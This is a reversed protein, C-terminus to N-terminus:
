FLRREVVRRIRGPQSAGYVVLTGHETGATVPDSGRGLLRDTLDRQIGSVVLVDSDTAAREVAADTGSEVLRTEVPAACLAVLETLYDATTNRRSEPQDEGIPLYFTVTSGTATALADALAVKAPDFPGEDTIVGIREVADHDLNSVEVVDCPAHDEIWQTDSGLLTDRGASREILLTDADVHDAYNVIAHRTDHSVVEGYRIPIESDTARDAMRAEFAQDAETLTAASQPLPTQDPVEDFQAVRVGGERTRALDAALDILAREVDPPTRETVAVLVEHGATEVESETQEVVDRGVSRRLADTMAGERPVGGRRSVFLYYWAMSGVIIVVAGVLPVFGIYRLLVIGGGIGVLQPVPYLPSEFSPEYAEISGQRFAILAVNILVFVLIKFASALKAIDAIPVFAILVLLVGGTITIANVPTEFRDSVDEFLDPALGDRSMAFPYRSSSLIGANATSILALLAAVVVAAVGIAPLANSAAVQMPTETNTLASADAVGVMVTVIAVYIGATIVLSGLIGLPLNRDPNEVEEAVSAIKTVGAYSVFVFGTASLIGEFGSGFFGGFRARDVSPAGVVIFWVMVALMVAVIAIQMRGTQKAGVVNLVILVGAVALAVPTVPLDFLLVLYPAGGVLALAGKFTLSFWTGVGAITGFLPGMAREIYLYTGGAEPMATAMESKSLAAPLVLVGALAYAFVVAPGAMEMALGPLIFIGSGVMAGISIATVSPLGLDRELQKGM